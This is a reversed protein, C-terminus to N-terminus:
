KNKNNITLVGKLKIDDSSAGVQIEYNGPEITFDDKSEDYYKLDDAKLTLEVTKSEGKKISIRKFGKLSKIAEPQKSALNELTLLM